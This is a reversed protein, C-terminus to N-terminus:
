KKKNNSPVVKYKAQGFGLIPYGIFPLIALVVGFIKKKNFNRAINQIIYVYVVFCLLSFFRFIVTEKSNLWSYSFLILLGWWGPVSGIEALTWLNYFPIITIWGPKGAKELTKWFSAIMLGIILIVLIFTMLGLM